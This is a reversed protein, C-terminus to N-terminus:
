AVADPDLERGAIGRTGDPAADEPARGVAGPLGVVEPLGGAAVDGGAVVLLGAGAPDHQPGLGSVADAPVVLGFGDDDRVAAALGLDPQGLLSLHHHGGVGHLQALVGALAQDQPVGEHLQEVLVRVGGPDARRPRRLVLHRVALERLKGLRLSWAG